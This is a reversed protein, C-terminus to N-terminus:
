VDDLRFYILTGAASLSAALSGLSRFWYLRENLTYLVFYTTQPGAPPHFRHPLLPAILFSVPALGSSLVHTVHM